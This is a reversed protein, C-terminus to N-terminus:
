SVSVLFGAQEYTKLAIDLDSEEVLVYDRDHTSVVFISLGRDALPKAIRAVVGVEDFALDGDIRLCHWGRSASQESPIYKQPCMISLEDSTRAIFVTDRYPLWSPFDQDPALKCVAFLEPLPKITLHNNM